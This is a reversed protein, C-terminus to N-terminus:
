RSLIMSRIYILDSLEEALDADADKLVDLLLRSEGAYIATFPNKPEMEHLNDIRDILKIIKAEVSATSLKERDLQKQEARKLGPIKTNTLELVIECTKKPFTTALSSFWELGCDELVDHLFAAAVMEETAKSHTAVRGAVRIPHTIYPRNNYKRVQGKHAKNALQAALIIISM